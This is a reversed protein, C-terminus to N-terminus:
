SPPPSSASQERKSHLILDTVAVDEDKEDSVWVRAHDGLADRLKSLARTATDTTGLVVSRGDTGVANIRYVHLSAEASRHFPVSGGGPGENDCLHNRRNSLAPNHWHWKSLLGPM